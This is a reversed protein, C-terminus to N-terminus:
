LKLGELPNDSIERKPRVGPKAAPTPTDQTRAPERPRAPAARRREQAIENRLHTREEETKATRLDQEKQAIRAELRRAREDADRRIRDQDEAARRQLAIKETQADARLKYIVGGALAVVVAAVAIIAPLPSKGKHHQIELRMREEQLRMEADVRARREAEQLRMQEERSRAVQEEELRRVKDEEEKRLREVDERARREADERSKRQAESQARIDAEEQRIRDDEIRRLEKLSFLVSNERQEPM